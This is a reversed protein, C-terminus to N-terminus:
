DCALRRPACTTADPVHTQLGTANVDSREHWLYLSNTYASTHHIMFDYEQHYLDDPMQYILFRHRSDTDDPGQILDPQKAGACARLQVASCIVVGVQPEAKAATSRRVLGTLLCFSVEGIEPGAQDETPPLEPM